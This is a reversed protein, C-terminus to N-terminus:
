GCNTFETLFHFKRDGPCWLFRKRGEIWNKFEPSDLLWQGTGDEARAFYDLHNTWYNRTSIWNLIKQREDTVPNRLTEELDADSLDGESWPITGDLRSM